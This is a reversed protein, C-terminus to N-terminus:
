NQEKARLRKVLIATAIMLIYALLSVAICYYIFSKLGLHVFSSLLIVGYVILNVLVLDTLLVMSPTIEDIEKKDKLPFLLVSLVPIFWALIAPVVFAISLLLLKFFDLNFLLQTNFTYTIAVCPTITLCVCAIALASKTEIKELDTLWSM